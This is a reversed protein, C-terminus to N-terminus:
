FWDPICCDHASRCIFDFNNDLVKLRVVNEVIVRIVIFIIVAM